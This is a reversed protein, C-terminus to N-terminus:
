HSSPARARQSRPSLVTVDGQAARELQAYLARMAASKGVLGGYSNRTSLPLEAYSDALELAVESRGLVLTATGEIRTGNKSGLDRVTINAEGVTLECHFRSVTPDTLALEASPHTGIVVRQGTSVVRAGANPGAAVTLVFRRIALTHERIVAM